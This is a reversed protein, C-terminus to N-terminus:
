EDPLAEVADKLEAMLPRSIEGLHILARLVDIIEDGQLAKQLCETAPILERRFKQAKVSFISVPLDTM